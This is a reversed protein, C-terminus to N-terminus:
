NAYTIRYVKGAHDDSVLMSGDPLLVIDVPRGYVNGASEWGTAFPEYSVAQNGNLKVLMIRYGIKTSRNWSGHEAIFIQNRYEAPFMNGTYFKMGLPAVHPGLNKAPATYGSCPHGQGFEPDALNGAHCFPFGFHMGKQPAHNLECPPSDDGLWDRGNETFWLEGTQPHWDFGVSNRVGSAYIEMNSGDPNLRTITAYISDSENCINCPAGVPVYLKGDPGFAIYKWGHHENTPYDDYVTIPAPPNALRNEVDDLRVISSVSSVYLSGNHFAVGAPMNLGSAITYIKDAKFDGNTDKLAYVKGESRSGVFVTGDSGIDMGRAQKVDNAYVSIKFGAPLQIRQAVEDQEGPTEKIDKGSCSFMAVFMILQAIRLMPM